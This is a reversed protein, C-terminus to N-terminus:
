KNKRLSDFTKYIPNDFGSGSRISWNPYDFANIGKHKYYLEHWPSEISESRGPSPIVLARITPNASSCYFNLDWGWLITATITIANIPLSNHGIVQSPSLHSYGASASFKSDESKWPNIEESSAACEAGGRAINLNESKVSSILGKNDALVMLSKRQLCHWAVCYQHEELGM